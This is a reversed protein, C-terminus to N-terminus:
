KWWFILTLRDKKYVKKVGHYVKSGNFLTLKGIKPKIVIGNKTFFEGGDFDENLYILSNYKGNERGKNDHIHLNSNSGINWNEIQAQRISLNFNLTKKFFFIVKNVIDEKTIDVTSQEWTFNGKGLKPSKKIWYDCEKKSLFSDKFFILDSKKRTFSKSLNM